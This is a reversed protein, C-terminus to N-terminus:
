LRNDMPGESGQGTHGDAELGLVAGTTAAQIVSVPTCELLRPTRECSILVSRIIREAPVGTPRLLQDFMPRLPRLQHEIVALATM